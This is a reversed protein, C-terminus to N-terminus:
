VKQVLGIVMQNDSFRLGRKIKLADDVDTNDCSLCAHKVDDDRGISYTLSSEKCNLTYVRRTFKWNTM